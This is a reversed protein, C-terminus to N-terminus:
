AEKMYNAADEPSTTLIFFGSGWDIASPGQSLKPLVEIHWHYDDGLTHWHNRRPVRNPATHIYYTYQPDNLARKLKNLLIPMLSSLDFLEAEGIEQFDCSHRKPIIWFEFPVRPAFPCFALFHETEAIVRAAARTEEALIDCFICREKYSYYAKAGELEQKVAEPIVPTAMLESYPHAAKAGAAKGKNKYIFVHRILPDKALEALRDKYIQFIRRFAGAEEPQAEHLGSEVLIEYSGVPNMRDYIGMGKRGLESMEELIPEGKILAAEGGASVDCLPCSPEKGDPLAPYEDPRKSVPLVAIWRNLLPDKRLEHM